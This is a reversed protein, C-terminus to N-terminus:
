KQWLSNSHLLVHRNYQSKERPRKTWYTPIEPHQKNEENRETKQRRGETPYKGKRLHGGDCSGEKVKRTWERKSKGDQRSFVIRKKQIARQSEDSRVALKISYNVYKMKLDKKLVKENNRKEM